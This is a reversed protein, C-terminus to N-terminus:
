SLLEMVWGQATVIETLSVDYLKATKNNNFTISALQSHEGGQKISTLVSKHQQIFTSLAAGIIVGISELGSSHQQESKPAPLEITSVQFGDALLLPEKLVLVSIARGNFQTEVFKCCFKKLDDRLTEYEALTETRYLLHSLPMGGIDIHVLNMRYILDSFFAKYAGILFRLSDISKESM